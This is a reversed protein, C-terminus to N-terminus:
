YRKAREFIELLEAIHPNEKLIQQAREIDQIKDQFRKKSESLKEALSQERVRLAATGECQDESFM